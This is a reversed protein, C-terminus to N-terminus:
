RRFDELLSDMGDKIIFHNRVYKESLRKFDGRVYRHVGCRTLPLMGSICYEPVVISLLGEIKFAAMEDDGYSHGVWQTSHSHVQAIQVLNHQNLAGVFDFNSRHSILVSGYSSVTQPAIVARVTVAEKRKTGGWYVLGENSPEINAYEILVKETDRIVQSSIVYLLKDKPNYPKKPDFNRRMCEEAM